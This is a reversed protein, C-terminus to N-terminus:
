PHPAPTRSKLEKIKDDLHFCDYQDARTASYIYELRKIGEAGGREFLRHVASAAIHNLVHDFERQGYNHEVKIDIFAIKRCVTAILTLAAPDDNVPKLLFYTENGEGPGTLDGAANSRALRNAKRITDFGKQVSQTDAQKYDPLKRTQRWRSVAGSSLYGCVGILALTPSLLVLKSWWTDGALM